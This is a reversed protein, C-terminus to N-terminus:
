GALRRWIEAYLEYLAYYSRQLGAASPVFDLRASMSARTPSAPRRRCRRSAQRRSNRTARPMDFSHAVLVVRTVGDARLIAASRRANEHTNRSRRGVWRVPVGFEHELAERM